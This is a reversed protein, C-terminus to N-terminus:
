VWARAAGRGAGHGREREIVFMADRMTVMRKENEQNVAAAAKQAAPVYPKAWTSTASTANTSSTTGTTSTPADKNTPVVSASAGSTGSSAANSGATATSAKSKAPSSSALSGSNMWAYKTLGLGRTAVANSMRKQVEESMNKATVGPGDKKKKPKKVPVTPTIDMQDDGGGAGPTSGSGDANAAGSSQSAQAAQAAAADSKEKRERRIKMEEEREIRELMDLIKKTDRRVVVSWMPSEDEYQSPARDFQSNARHDAAAIMAKILGQLRTRLALALYTVADDPIKNVKHQTGISRMTTGIISSDFSLNSAQKRSRDEYTRFM